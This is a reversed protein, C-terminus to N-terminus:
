ILFYINSSTVNSSCVAVSKLKSPKLVLQPIMNRNRRMAMGVVFDESWDFPRFRDM